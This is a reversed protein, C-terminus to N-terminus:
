SGGRSLARAVLPARVPARFPARLARSARERTVEVFLLALALARGDLLTNVHDRASFLRLATPTARRRAALAARSYRLVDGRATDAVLVDDTVGGAADHTFM